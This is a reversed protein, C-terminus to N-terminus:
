DTQRILGYARADLLQSEKLYHKKLYGEQEFGCKCLVRASAANPAFVHATIKTLGWKEFAFQCACSVAATMIGQGWYPKALWYGMEARHSKGITLGEFGLAGILRDEPTRIAWHIPERQEVTAQEVIGMWTEFDAETYPFPIRLTGEYIERAKLYELCAEKDSRQLQSFHFQDNIVIRM